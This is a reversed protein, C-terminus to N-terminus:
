INEITLELDALKGNEPNIKKLHYLTKRALNRDGLKVSLEIIKDLYKPNNPEITSAKLFSDLAKEHKDTAEYVKALDCYYVAVKPDVNISNLLETEMEQLKGNKLHGGKKGGISITYLKILYKYIEEAQDHCKNDFYLEGLSEYAKINKKDASVAEILKKEAASFEEKNMLVRGEEIIEDVTKPKQPKQKIEEKLKYHAELAVVKEKLKSFTSSVSRIKPSLFTGVKNKLNKNSRQFKAELIKIKTEGQKADSISDIDLNKLDPFRRFVLYALYAGIAAVVIIFFIILYM